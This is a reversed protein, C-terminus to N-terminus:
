GGVSLCVNLCLYLYCPWHSPLLCAAVGSAFLVWVLFVVPLSFGVKVKSQYAAPVDGQATLV